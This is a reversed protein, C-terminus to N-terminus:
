PHFQNMGISLGAQPRMESAAMSNAESPIPQLRKFPPSVLTSQMEKAQTSHISQISQVQVQDRSESSEGSTSVSRGQQSQTSTYVFPLSDLVRDKKRSRKKRKQTPEPQVQAQAANHVPLTSTQTSSQSSTLNADIFPQGPAIAQDAERTPLPHELDSSSPSTM